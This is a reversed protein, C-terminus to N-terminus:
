PKLKLRATQIYKEILGAKKMEKIIGALPDVLHRHRKHLFTHITQEEFVCCCAIGARNLKPSSRADKLTREIGIYIDTRGSALKRLGQLWHSVVTVNEPRTVKQLRNQIGLQGRMYDIRYNTGVLSEWGRLQITPDVVFGSINIIIIPEPVMVLNPFRGNYRAGRALEGEVQGSNAMLSGRKPPYYLYVLEKGMRRFADTYVLKLALGDVTKEERLSAMRIKEAASSLSAGPLGFSWICGLFLILIVTNANRM